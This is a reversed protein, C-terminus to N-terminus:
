AGRSRSGGFLRRFFTAIVGWIAALGLRIGGVPKAAPTPAARLGGMKMFAPSTQSTSISPNPM